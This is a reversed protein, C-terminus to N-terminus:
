KGGSMLGSIAWDTVGDPIIGALAARLGGGLGGGFAEVPNWAEELPADKQRISEIAAADSPSLASMLGGGALAYPLASKYINPDTPDFAGQNAVSKIQSPSFASIEDIVGGPTEIIVGDYGLGETNARFSRVDNPIDRRQIRRPNQMSVYLPMVNGGYKMAEGDFPTLYIGRGAQGHPSARFTDFKANTGHYVTLPNGAEDVVKSDGFWKVFNPNDFLAALKKADM